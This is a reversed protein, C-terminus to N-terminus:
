LVRELVRGVVKTADFHEEAIARAARAHHEYGAEAERVARVAEDVTRFRFLGQHDPLFGSPGTHQVVAPKGSALYCLTRDSIWANQLLMCSPKACSFEGRSLQIYRQYADPTSSVEAAGRVSWGHGTLLRRDGDDAPLLELALELDADVLEPVTAYELFSLRKSNDVDLGGVIQWEDWWHTITTYPAAPASPSLPWAPLYVAPPTYQWALGGTPIVSGPHGVTEGITFYVDHNAIELEGVSMWVQTLGPDIDVLASRRFPRVVRERCDYNFNLLLDYAAAQETRWTVGDLGDPAGVADADVLAIRVGPAYRALRRALLEAAGRVHAPDEVQGADELWTVDCGLAQLGLLWNLYVWFQGGAAPYSITNAYLCVTLTM